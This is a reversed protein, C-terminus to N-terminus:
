EKTFTRPPVPRELQTRERLNPTRTASDAKPPSQNEHLAKDVNRPWKTLADAAFTSCTRRIAFWHWFSRHTDEANRDQVYSKNLDHGRSFPLTDTRTKAITRHSPTIVLEERYFFIRLGRITTGVFFFLGTKKPFAKPEERKKALIFRVPGRIGDPSRVMPHNPTEPNEPRTLVERPKTPTQSCFVASVPTRWGPIGTPRLPMRAPRFPARQPRRGKESSLRPPGKVVPKLTSKIVPFKKM